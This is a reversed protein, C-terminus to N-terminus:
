HYAAFESKGIVPESSPPPECHPETVIEDPPDAPEVDSIVLGDDEFYPFEQPILAILSKM